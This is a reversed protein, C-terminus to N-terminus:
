ARRGTHVVTRLTSTAAVTLRTHYDLRGDDYDLREDQDMADRVSDPLLVPPAPDQRTFERWGELTTLYRQLEERDLATRWGRQRDPGQETATVM